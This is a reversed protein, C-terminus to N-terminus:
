STKNRVHINVGLGISKEPYILNNSKDYMKWKSHYDGEVKTYYEVKLTIIEGPLTTPIKITTKVPYFSDNVYEVCRLIRGEWITNGANKITWSKQFIKGVPITVGDSPYESIFVSDDKIPTEQSISNNRKLRAAKIKKKAIPILKITLIVSLSIFALICIVIIPIYSKFAAWIGVVVDIAQLILAIITLLNNKNSM